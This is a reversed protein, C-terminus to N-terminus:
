FKFMAGGMIAFDTGDAITLKLQAFPNINSDAMFLAGGIVNFGIDTDSVNIGFDDNGVDVSFRRISLGPAAYPRLIDFNPIKFLFPVNVDISFLSTNEPMFYYSFAPNLHMTITDSIGVLGIWADAGVFGQEVDVSYGAHPGIRFQAEADNQGVFLTAPIMLAAALVLTRVNMM